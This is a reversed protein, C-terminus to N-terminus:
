RLMEEIRHALEFPLVDIKAMWQTYDDLPLDNLIRTSSVSTLITVPVMPFRERIRRYIVIGSTLGYGAEKLDLADEVPMMIDLVYLDPPSTAEQAHDLAAAVTDLHTVHHGAARLAKVYLDMPGHDDDIFVIRAM